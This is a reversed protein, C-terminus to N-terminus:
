AATLRRQAVVRGSRSTEPDIQTEIHHIMGIEGYDITLEEGPAIDRIAVLFDDETVRLNPESSHNMYKDEDSSLRYVGLEPFHEAHIRVHEQVHEPLRELDTERITKDFLPEFRWVPAASPIKAVAFVGIGHIKSKDLRTKILFMQTETTLLWDLHPASNMQETWLGIIVSVRTMM